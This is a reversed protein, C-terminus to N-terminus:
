RRVNEKEVVFQNKNIGGSHDFVNKEVLHKARVIDKFQFITGTTNVNIFINSAFKSVQVGTLTIFAATDATSCNRIKNNSFLLNPGLTSEDNGGRYINLLIGTNNTFKNQSIDIKEANYYGKDDKEAVMGIMDVTNNTFANNRIVVSDAIMSKHAYFFNNCGEQKSLNGVSCNRVILNYHNSLEASDSAILHTAKIEKGDISLNTLTLHGNGSIVFAALMPVTVIKIPQKQKTTFQVQKSIMFPSSLQYSKGTLDIIVPKHHSLQVYIEEATNCAVTQAIVPMKNKLQQFWKAGCASFANAHVQKILTLTSFGPRASLTKTLRTVAIKNLSDLEPVPRNNQSVPFARVDNKQTTFSSRIFGKLLQQKMGKNVENGSFFFGDVKDYVNHLVNDTTNYFLNNILYVNAPPLTREADSGECLSIPSCDVFTNNAIVADTVQVYRHAPSNPIGNMISLPSRFDTGRCKYFFNNVVWQGKNIVRVGGTATKGNGLFVNNEVTNNDGHRLVVSGQSEKFVNGRVVNSGSKISIIETEGDCHEFLNDVIQTNSNFQCHQSVGVRIIEGGNSALPPRRGFYNHDISHFNERSREDDLIVAILVGMNKKDRFSCHDLRNSKGYFLVWNNEDMRKQNNFDDIVTNTVRCNNALDDKDARFSIVPDKGAYGNHFYLGDVTTYNGGIRLSSNGTVIVKGASQAKVLIPKEKTGNCKLKIVVDKWEGNQMIIKDGPKAKKVSAHLEDINKVITSDATAIFSVLLFTSLFLLRIM